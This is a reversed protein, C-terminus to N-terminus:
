KAKELDYKIGVMIPHSKAHRNKILEIIKAWQSLFKIPDIKIALYSNVNAETFTLGLDAFRQWM